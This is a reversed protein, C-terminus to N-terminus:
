RAVVIPAVCDTQPRAQLPIWRGFSPSSSAVLLVPSMADPEYGVDQVGDVTLMKRLQVRFQELQPAEFIVFYLQETMNRDSVRRYGLCRPVLSIRDLGANRAAALIQEGSVRGGFARDYEGKLLLPIAPNASANMSEMVRKFLQDSLGNIVSFPSRLALYPDTPRSGDQLELVFHDLDTGQLVYPEARTDRVSRWFLLALVAFAALAVAVKILRKSRAM